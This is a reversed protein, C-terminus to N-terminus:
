STYRKQYEKVLLRTTETYNEPNKDIDIVLSNINMFYSDEVEKPDNSFPGPYIVRYVVNFEHDNDTSKKIKFLEEFEIESPLKQEHFNEEQLERKAGDIYKDGSSLHGGPICSKQPNSNKIISRKQILTDQYSNDKFVLIAAGRHLLKNAHCNSKLEQGIIKDQDDVIDVIEDM